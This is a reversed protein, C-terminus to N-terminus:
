SQLFSSRIGWNWKRYMYMTLQDGDVLIIKNEVNRTYEIAKESFTSTTIFIGRKAKKGLLAGAFKQIKPKDVTFLCPSTEKAM